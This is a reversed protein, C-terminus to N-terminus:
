AAAPATFPPEAPRDARRLRLYGGLAGLAPSLVFGALHQWLPIAGMDSAMGYLGLTVCLWASLAGNLVEGRRALRAAVYGGLVNCAGGLVWSAVQLGPSARMAALMAATQEAAPLSAVSARAAAVAMLPIAVVNTAVIDTFGGLVIGKASLRRM